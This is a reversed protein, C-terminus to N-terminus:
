GVIKQQFLYTKKGGCKSFMLIHEKKGLKKPAHNRHCIIWPKISSSIGKPKTHRFVPVSVSGFLDIM